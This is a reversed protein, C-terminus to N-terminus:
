RELVPWQRWEAGDILHEKVRGGGWQKFFFPVRVETCQGLLDKVWNPNMTRADRGTEGGCIVWDIQGQHLLMMASGKDTYTFRTGTLVNWSVQDGEIKHLDVPGLMPEVSLFRLAAPTKLLWPIRDNAAAQNEISVGIWVNPLFKMIPDSKEGWWADYFFDLENNFAAILECMRRARKTLIFFTHWPSRGMAQFVLRIFDDPVQEHFLDSMSNVFIRSPKRVKEPEYLKAPHCLVDTFKREGWFRLAYREAYCHRCGESVKTCGSVPNWSKDVWDIKTNNM